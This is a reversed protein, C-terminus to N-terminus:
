AKATQRQARRTRFLEFALYVIASVLFSDIASIGTVSLGVRPGFGAVAIGFGWAIFAEPHWSRSPLPAADTWLGVFFRPLYIGAIPPVAISLLLLYPVILDTIGFVGLMLGLFGAACTLVWRRSRKFVTALMLSGSYLNSAGNTWSALLVVALASLGLGLGVMTTVLDKEGSLIAPISAALLTIPYGVGLASGCAVAGGAPRRAFRAFDPSVVAGVVWGGVVFSV